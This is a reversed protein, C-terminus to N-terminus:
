RASPSALNRRPSTAHTLARQDGGPDIAPRAPDRKRQARPQPGASGHKTAPDVALDLHIAAEATDPPSVRELCQATPVLQGGHVLVGLEGRADALIAPADHTDRLHRRVVDRARAQSGEGPLVPAVALVPGPGCAAMGLAQPWRVRQRRPERQRPPPRSRAAGPRGPPAFRAAQRRPRASTTLAVARSLPPRASANASGATNTVM